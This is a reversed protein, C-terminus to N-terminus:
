MKFNRSGDSINPRLCQSLHVLKKLAHMYKQSVPDVDYTNLSDRNRRYERAGKMTCAAVHAVHTSNWMKNGFTLHMYAEHASLYDREYASGAMVTLQQLVSKEKVFKGEMSTRTERSRRTDKGEGRELSEGKKLRWLLPSIAKITEAHTTGTFAAKEIEGFGPYGQEKLREWQGVFYHVFHEIFAGPQGIVEPSRLELPPNGYDWPQDEALDESDPSTQEIGSDEGEGAKAGKSNAVPSSESALPCPCGRAFNKCCAYGWRKAEADFFSGWVSNHGHSRVDERWLTSETLRTDAAMGLCGPEALRPCRAHTCPSRHSM